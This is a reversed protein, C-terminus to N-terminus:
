LKCSIFDLCVSESENKWKWKGSLNVRPLGPISRGDLSWRTLSPSSPQHFICNDPQTLIYVGEFQLGKRHAPDLHLCECTRPLTEKAAFKSLTPSSLITWVAICPSPGFTFVWVAPGKIHAPDMHLCESSRSIRRKGSNCYIREEWSAVMKSTTFDHSTKSFLYKMFQSYPPYKSKHWGGM